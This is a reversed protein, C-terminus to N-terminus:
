KRLLEERRGLLRIRGDVDIRYIFADTVILEPVKPERVLVHWVDTDEPINDLVATHTGYELRGNTAAPTGFEIISRHLVRTARLARGDASYHYRTDGGLPYVDARTQAPAVYTYWGGDPASLVAINMPRTPQGLRTRVDAITRAMAALAGTEPRAPVVARATFPEGESTGAVAEYTVRLTDGGPSLSGFSVTWRGGIERALYTTFADRAPRLAMVADTGQWAAADYNALQYGRRTIAELSDPAPPALRASTAAPSAPTPQAPLVAPAITLAALVAAVHLSLSSSHMPPSAHHVQVGAVADDDPDDFRRNAPATTM